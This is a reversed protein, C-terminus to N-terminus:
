EALWNTMLDYFRVQAKLVEADTSRGLDDCHAAGPIVMAEMLPNTNNGNQDAISLNIWPDMSGNTFFIQSSTKEFLPAYFRQEINDTPMTSKMGFLRHCVENHYDANIQASRASEAPDSWANQWFGYETCSQYFWQRMGISGSSKSLSIDEAAQASMEALNGFIADVRLKSLVYGQLGKSELNNCFMDRMGYQIAAAATDAILYMFDDRRNLVTANFKAKMEAFGEDTQIASEIQQVSSQLAKLCTPGAMLAVHHDYESFDADPRVPASSALAGIVRDPYQSRLYASLTGPYSGGVSIWPGTLKKSSKIFDQFSILDFLAQETSLYKLNATSLDAFPQSQGYYRHELSVVHAGLSRAHEAIKGGISYSGCAGEGCIYLLVPASASKAYAGTYWYRQSFTRTDVKSLHDLKQQYIDAVEVSEDPLISNFLETQQQQYREFLLQKPDAFATASLLILLLATSLTQFM